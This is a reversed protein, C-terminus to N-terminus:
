SPEGPESVALQWASGDPEISASAGAAPEPTQLPRIVIRLSPASIPAAPEESTDAAATVTPPRSVVTLVSEPDPRSATASTDSGWAETLQELASRERPVRPVQQLTSREWDSSATDTGPLGVVQTNLALLLALGTGAMATAFRLRGVIATSWQWLRVAPAPEPQQARALITDWARPSPAASEIRAALAIRLQEVMARDFGVEDRCGRCSALHDLHPQSSPGLEGFRSLWLLERCIRRCRM